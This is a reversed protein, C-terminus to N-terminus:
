RSNVWEMIKEANSEMQQTDNSELEMILEKRYSETADELVVQMIECQINEDIKNDRKQLRQNLQGIDARLVVVLDFWREPFFDCTHFDVITNGEVGVMDEFEDVIKDENLVYSDFEEDRGDHLTREKVAAGIDIYRLKPCLSAVIQALTSKGTGPTGTILINPGRM